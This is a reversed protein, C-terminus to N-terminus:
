SMPEGRVIVSEVLTQGDERRFLVLDARMGAVLGGRDPLGLYAAPAHSALSWAEELGCLGSGVLHDIGRLVPLAAVVAPGIQVKVM